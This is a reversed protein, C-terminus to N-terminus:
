QKLKETLRNIDEDSILPAQVAQVTIEGGESAEITQCRSELAPRLARFYSSLRPTMWPQFGVFACVLDRGPPVSMLGGPQVMGSHDPTVPFLPGDPGGDIWFFVLMGETPPPQGSTTVRLIAFNTGVVIKLSPGAQAGIEIDAASVEHEGQTVSKLYVGGVSLRWHGPSVSGITFTGDSGVEASLVNGSGLPSLLVRLYGPPMQPGIVSVTGEVAVLKGAIPPQAALTSLFALGLVALLKM